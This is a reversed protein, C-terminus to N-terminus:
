IPLKKLMVTLTSIRRIWRSCGRKWLQCANELCDATYYKKGLSM